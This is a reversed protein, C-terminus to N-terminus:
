IPMDIDFTAVAQDLANELLEAKERLVKAAKSGHKRVLETIGLGLEISDWVIFAASLGIIIQSAFRVSNQGVVKGSEIYVGPNLSNSM